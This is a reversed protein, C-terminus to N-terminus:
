VLCPPTLPVEKSLDKILKAADELLVPDMGDVTEAIARATELDKRAQFISSTATKAKDIAERLKAAEKKKKLSERAEEM